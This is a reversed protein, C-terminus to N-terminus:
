ADQTYIVIAGVREFGAAELSAVAPQDTQLVETMIIEAGAQSMRGCLDLLMERGLMGAEETEAIGMSVVRVVGNAGPPNSSVWGVVRGDKEVVLLKDANHPPSYRQRWPKGDIQGHRKELLISECADWREARAWDLEAVASLGETRAPRVRIVPDGRRLADEPTLRRAYHPALVLLKFGSKEYIHRAPKAREETRVKIVQAGLSRLKRMLHEQLLSSIGNGWFEPLVHNGDIEAIAGPPRHGSFGVVRGGVEALFGEWPARTRLWQMSTRVGSSSGLRREIEFVSGHKTALMAATCIEVLAPHDEPRIPRIRIEFSM